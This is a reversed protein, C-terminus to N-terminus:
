RILGITVIDDFIPTYSSQEENYKVGIERDHYLYVCNIKSYHIDIDTDVIQFKNTRSFLSDIYTPDSSFFCITISNSDGLSTGNEVVDLEIDNILIKM